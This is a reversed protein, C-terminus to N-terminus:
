NQQAKGAPNDDNEELSDTKHWATPQQLMLVTLLPM